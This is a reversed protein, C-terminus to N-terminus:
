AFTTLSCRRRSTSRQALTSGEVASMGETLKSFFAESMSYSSTLCHVLVVGDMLFVGFSGQQGGSWVIDKFLM